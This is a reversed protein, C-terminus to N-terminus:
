PSLKAMALARKALTALSADDAQNMSVSSHRQGLALWVAITVEDSEGSTTAENRAFRVNAAGRRHVDIKLEANKVGDKATVDQAIALARGALQDLDATM